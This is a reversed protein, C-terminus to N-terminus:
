FPQNVVVMRLYKILFIFFFFKVHGEFVWIGDAMESFPIEITGKFIKNIKKKLFIKIVQVGM